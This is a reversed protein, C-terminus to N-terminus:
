EWKIARLGLPSGWPAGSISNEKKHIIIEKLNTANLFTRINITKITKPVEIKELNTCYAFNESNLIEVKNLDIETMKDQSYFAQEAIEKVEDILSFKGNIEYLATILKEKNKTYLVRNEIIYNPNKESITINLNFMRYAFMSNINEAKEGITVDTLTGNGNFIQYGFTKTENNFIIEKAKTAGIFSKAAIVEAPEKLEVKSEKSYCFLLTKPETKTYICNEATKLYNNNNAVEVTDITTPLVNVGLKQLSSPIILKTINNFEIIKCGFETVGEPIEFTTKNEYYKKSVFLVNSKSSSMLMGNTYIFKTNKSNIQIKDLQKCGNFATKEISEVNEQIEFETFNCNGFASDKITKINNGRFKINTLGTTCFAYSEITEINVPIEIYELKQCTYFAGAAITTITDPLEVEALNKCEQFAWGGITEVGDEMIVNELTQNNAFANIGIEKVTGPIIITRLGEVNSFAGSSIKTVSDPLRLTGNEDVLLLNGSDSKLEGNEINYPNPEVGVNKAAEIVNKDKTNVILKGKIIEIKELDEDTINKIIDKITKEDNNTKTNYAVSTKGATLSEEYFETNEIKKDAIFIGLQEKYSALSTRIKSQKAKSMIGNSGIVLNISVGALIILVVITVVLAVLTIGNEKTQRNLKM